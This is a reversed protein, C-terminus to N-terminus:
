DIKIDRVMLQLSTNGNWTNEELNYVFSFEKGNALDSYFDSMGFAICSFVNAPNSEQYATFKLHTEGVIKVWKAVVKETMFVPTMNQPGFPAFQKLVRYFKPLGYDSASKIENFDIKADIKIEPILQEPTITQAVVEEFKQQFAPINEIPMTLGAAYMHGGFQTLLDSCADIANYVDFGMVSRASGAAVGNSETLIITPRYHTEILRSAVIGIVGKHWDKNYLVSTKATTLKDNSAIIDLAEETINRDLDKRDANEQEIFKSLEQSDFDDESVLLKVANMGSQMRGAANIRPGITFVLGTINLERNNSSIKLIEAIGKRPNENVRKLGYYALIRNEGTIPVIDSAISIALLDFYQELENFPINKTQAIAQVLKFGVGCGCLEKYPYECDNRKPDLVAIANPIEDGPRHHDCIIFDIGKEQAYNVKDIAKIGCDLAIILSFNNEHAYDIGQFSVGYGETYRNPIYYELKDYITSLFSYMLAVATTGDVDYDGYVLIKEQNQIAALVRNVAKDMDKMLFPDHLENLSPRFFSKAEDFTNIGRQHLLQSIFSSVGLQNALDKVSQTETFETINWRKEM